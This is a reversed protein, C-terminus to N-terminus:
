HAVLSIDTSLSPPVVDNSVWALLFLSGLRIQAANEQQVRVACKREKWHKTKTKIIKAETILRISISVALLILQLLLRFLNIMWDTDDGIQMVIKSNNNDLNKANSKQGGRMKKDRTILFGFHQPM